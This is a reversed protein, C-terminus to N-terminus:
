RKKEYSWGTVKALRLMTERLEAVEARPSVFIGEMGEPTGEIRCCKEYVKRMLADFAARIVKPKSQDRGTGSCSGCLGGETREGDSLVIKKGRGACASCCTCVNDEGCIGCNFTPGM